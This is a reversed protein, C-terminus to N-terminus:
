VSLGTDVLFYTGSNVTYGKQRMEVRLAVCLPYVGPGFLPLGIQHRWPPMRYKAFVRPAATVVVVSEGSMVDDHALTQQAVITFHCQKGSPVHPALFGAVALSRCFDAVCRDVRWPPVVDEESESSNTFLAEQMFCGDSLKSVNGILSAGFADGDLCSHPKPWALADHQSPINCSPDDAEGTCIMTAIPQYVGNYLTLRVDRQKRQPSLSLEVAGLAPHQGSFPTFFTYYACNLVGVRQWFDEMPAHLMKVHNDRVPRPTTAFEALSHLLSHFYLGPIGAHHLPFQQFPM